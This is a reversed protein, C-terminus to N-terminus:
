RRELALRAGLGVFIVGAVGELVRKIRSVHYGKAAHGIALTVSTLWILGMTYHIGVMLITKLIVPDTKAIFQPLFAVYFLAVKPNLANTVFGEAFATRGSKAIPMPEAEEEKLVFERLSKLGLYIM